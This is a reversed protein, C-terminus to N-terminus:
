TESTHGIQPFVNIDGVFPINGIERDNHSGCVCSSLMGYACACPPLLHSYQSVYKKPTVILRCLNIFNDIINHLGMM